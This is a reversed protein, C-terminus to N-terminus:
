GHVRLEVDVHTGPAAHEPREVELVIRRVGDAVYDAEVVKARQWRSQSQVAM